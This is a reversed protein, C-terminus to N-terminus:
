SVIVSKNDRDVFYQVIMNNGDNHQLFHCHIFGGVCRIDPSGTKDESSYNPWTLYFSVTEQPGIQYIDRSYTLQDYLRKHTLLGPSNNKSHVVSFGSTLHFHLPHADTNDGNTYNWIESSHLKVSFSNLNDNLFGDYLGMYTQGPTIILEADRKMCAIPLQVNGDSTAYFPFIQQIEADLIGYTAYEDCKMYLSPSKKAPLYHKVIDNEDIKNNTSNYRLKKKLRQQMLLGTNSALTDGTMPKGFFQLLPWRGLFRIWYNSKNTTKVVASKIYSTKQYEFDLAYPFFSWDCTLIDSIAIPDGNIIISHNQMTTNVLDIWQQLNLIQCVPTPPFVIVAMAIPEKTLDGYAVPQTFIQIKLTDNSIMATNSYRDNTKYIRFKSTPLVPPKYNNPTLSYQQLAWALDLENSNWLDVMIRGTGNICETIGNINGGAIAKM